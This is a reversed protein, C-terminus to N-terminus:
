TRLMPASFLSRRLSTLNLPLLILALPLLMWPTWLDFLAMAATWLLLIVSSLRLSVRHWFLAGILALTALVSLVMM